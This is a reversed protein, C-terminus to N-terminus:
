APSAGGDGQAADATIRKVMARWTERDQAQQAWIREDVEPLARLIARTQNTFKRNTTGRRGDFLGVRDTPVGYLAQRPLRDPERRAVHGVWRVTRRLVLTLVSEVGLLDYLQQMSMHEAQRRQWPIGVAERVRGNWFKQLRAKDKKQLAWSEAGYLLVPSIALM